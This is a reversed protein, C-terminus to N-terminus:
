AINEYTYCFYSNTVPLYVLFSIHLLEIMLLPNERCEFHTKINLLKCEKKTIFYVIQIKSMLKLLELEYFRNLYIVQSNYLKSRIVLIYYEELKAVNYLITSLYKPHSLTNLIVTFILSLIGIKNPVLLEILFM